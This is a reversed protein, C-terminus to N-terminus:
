DLLLDALQANQNAFNQQQNLAAQNLMNGYNYQQALRMQAANEAQTLQSEQARLGLLANGQTTIAEANIANQLKARLQQELIDRQFNETAKKKGTIMEFIGEAADAGMDSIRGTTGTLGAILPLGVTGIGPIVSGIKALLLTTALDTGGKGIAQAVNRDTDEGDGFEGAAGLGASLLALGRLAGKNKGLMETVRSVTNPQAAFRTGASSGTRYIKDLDVKPAGQGKVADKLRRAGEEIGLSEGLGRVYEATSARAPQRGIPRGYQDVLQSALARYM